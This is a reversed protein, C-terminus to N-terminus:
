GLGRAFDLVEDALRERGALDRMITDACRVAVGLEEIAATQGADQRDIMIGDVVGLYANAVGTASAPQGILRMLDGAPGSVADGGVIPSVAV